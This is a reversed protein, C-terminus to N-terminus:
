EAVMLEEAEKYITNIKEKISNKDMKTKISDVSKILISKSDEVDIEEVEMGAVDFSEFDSVEFDFCTENLKSLLREFMLDDTKNQVIVKCITDEYIVMDLDDYDVSEDDYLIKHYIPNDNLVIEIDETKTDFVRFGKKQGYDGWDMEYPTGIYEIVTKKGIKKKAPKHFHGSLVHEYQKFINGDLGHHCEIGSVMEFGNIELHGILMDSTSGAMFDMIESQNGRNMWPILDIKFGDFTLTTGDNVVHTNPFDAGIIENLASLKSTNNYVIDHNGQIVWQEVNNDEFWQLYVTRLANLIRINIFKRQELLDGFQIVRTINNDLLYPFFRNEFFSIQKRLFFESNGRAGWHTDGLFAIKM